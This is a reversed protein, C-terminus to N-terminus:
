SLSKKNELIEKLRKKTRSIKSYVTNVTINMIKAIEEPSIDSKYYYKLVLRDDPKLEKLLERFLMIEESDMLRKLASPEHSSMRDIRAPGDGPADELSIFTKKRAIFNRTTNIAIIRLWSAVTCNNDGRFQRLKKSDDRFFSLLIDNFIDEIDERIYGSCNLRLTEHVSGYILRAYKEVFVNRAEPDGEICNELLEKDSLNNHDM